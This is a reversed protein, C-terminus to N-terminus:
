LIQGPCFENADALPYRYWDVAHSARGQITKPDSPDFWRMRVVVRITETPGSVMAVQASFPAPRDDRATAFQEASMGVTRWETLGHQTQVVFFWSVVQRDIGATRDRAFVIPFRATVRDLNQEDDYRCRAGTYEESDVLDHVGYLGSHVLPTDAAVPAAIAAAMAVAALMSVIPRQIRVM